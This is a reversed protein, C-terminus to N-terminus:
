KGLLEKLKITLEEGRLARAIIKGSPDILFNDPIPGVGYVYSPRGAVEDWEVVHQWAGTGDDEIAKLWKQQAEKKDVTVSLITFGADKYQNYAKVLYPSEKRCPGCWSAWFDLLVYKGKVDALTIRKGNIDHATFDPAPKQLGTREHAMIKDHLAIASPFHKVTDALKDFLGMIEAHSLLRRRELNKLCQLSLYSQPYRKIFDLGISDNKKEFRETIANTEESLVRGEMLRVYEEHLPENVDNLVRAESNLRSDPITAEKLTSKSIIQTIGREIYLTKTEYRAVDGDPLITLRYLTPEAVQGKFEFKGNHIITSDWAMDISDGIYHGFYVKAPPNLNAIQGKLLFEGTQAYAPVAFLSAIILLGQKLRM